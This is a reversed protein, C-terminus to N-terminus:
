CIFNLACDRNENYIEGRRSGYYRTSSHKSRDTAPLRLQSKKGGRSFYVKITYGQKVVMGAKPEQRIVTDAPSEEDFVEIADVQLGSAQAIKKAEAQNKGVVKPVTVEQGRSLYIATLASGIFAIILIALIFLRRAITWVVRAFGM